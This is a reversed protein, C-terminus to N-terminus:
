QDAPNRAPDANAEPPTSGPPSFVPPQVVGNDNNAIPPQALAAPPQAAANPPNENSNNGAEASDSSSYFQPPDRPPPTPEAATPAPTALHHNASTLPHGVSGNGHNIHHQGNGLSDDTAQMTLKPLHRPSRILNATPNSEASPPQTNAPDRSNRQSLSHVVGYTGLATFCLGAAISMASKYENVFRGTRRAFALVKGLGSGLDEEALFLGDIGASPATAPAAANKQAVPASQRLKAEATQRTSQARATAIAAATKAQQREFQQRGDNLLAFYDVEGTNKGSVDVIHVDRFEAPKPPPQWTSQSDAAASNLELYPIVDAAIKWLGAQSDFIRSEVKLAGDMLLKVIEQSTYPGQKQGDVELFWPAPTQGEVM